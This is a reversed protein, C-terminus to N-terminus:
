ARRRPPLGDSTWSGSTGVPAVAEIDAREAPEVAADVRAITAADPEGTEAATSAILLDLPEVDRLTEAARTMFASISDYSGGGVQERVYAALEQPPTITLRTMTMSEIM